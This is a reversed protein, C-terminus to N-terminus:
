QVVSSSYKPSAKNFDAQLPHPEVSIAILIHIDGTQYEVSTDHMCKKM